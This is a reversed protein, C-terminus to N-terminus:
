KNLQQELVKIEEEIAVRNTAGRELARRYWDIALQYQGSEKLYTAAILALDKDTKLDTAAGILASFFEPQYQKLAGNPDLYLPAIDSFLDRKVIYTGKSSALFYKQALQYKKDAIAINMLGRNAHYIYNPAEPEKILTWKYLNAAKAYDEVLMADTASSFIDQVPIPSWLKYLYSGLPWLLILALLASGATLRWDFSVLKNVRWM